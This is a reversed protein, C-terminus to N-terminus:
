DRAPEASTRITKIMEFLIPYLVRLAPRTLYKRMTIKWWFNVSIAADLSHVQHWWFPPIYLMEGPNLTFAIPRAKDFKPFKKLDPQQINVRSFGAVRSYVPFPYLMSWQEPAFLTLQKQGWVQAFLNHVVDYHLPTMTGPSSVWFNTTIKEQGDLCGPYHINEALAPFRDTFSTESYYYQDTAQNASAVMDAYRNFSMKKRDRALKAPSSEHVPPFFNSRSVEVSVETIGIVSKLYDTNWLALAEWRKMDGTIIVPQHAAVFEKQFRHPTLSDVRTIQNNENLTSM